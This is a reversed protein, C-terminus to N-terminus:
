VTSMERLHKRWWYAGEGPLRAEFDTYGLAWHIARKLRENEARLAALDDLAESTSKLYTNSLTIYHDCDKKTRVLEARLQSLEEKLLYNEFEAADNMYFKCGSNNLATVVPELAEEDDDNTLISIKGNTIEYHGDYDGTDAIQHSHGILSWEGEVESEGGQSAATDIPEIESDTVWFCEGSNNCAYYDNLNVKKITVISSIDFCHSNIKSVIRVRDGPKFTHKSM